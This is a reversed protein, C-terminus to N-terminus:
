EALTTWRAGYMPGGWSQVAKRLNDGVVPLWTKLAQHEALRREFRQRAADNKAREIFKTFDREDRELVANVEAGQFDVPAIERYQIMASLQLHCLDHHWRLKSQPDPAKHEHRYLYELTCVLSEIRQERSREDM